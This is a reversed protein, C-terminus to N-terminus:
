PHPRARLPREHRTEKYRRVARDAHQPPDASTHLWCGDIYTWSRWGWLHSWWPADPDPTHLLWGLAYANARHSEAWAHDRWCLALANPVGGVAAVRTGGARRPARYHVETAPAGCGACRGDHVALAAARVSPTFAGPGSPRVRPLRPLRM